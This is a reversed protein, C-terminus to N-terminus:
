GVLRETAADFAAVDNFAHGVLLAGELLAVAELAARRPLGPGGERDSLFTVIREFFRRAEAGVSEPLGKIEAALMGCLCMQNNEALSARFLNRLAPLAGVGAADEELRAQFREAYRAALVTTLAEKTPFHHHVSASKVGVDAALDRFSFGNYGSRRVRKEAADLIRERTGKAM